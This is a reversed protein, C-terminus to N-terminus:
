CKEKRQAAASRAFDSWPTDVEKGVGLKRKPAVASFPMMILKCGRWAAADGGFNNTRISLGLRDLERVSQVEAEGGGLVRSFRRSIWSGTGTDGDGNFDASGCAACCTGGLCAFFAEIDHDLNGVDGDGNFDATYCSASGRVVVISSTAPNGSRTLTLVRGGGIDPAVLGSFAPTDGAEHRFIPIVDGVRLANPNRVQVTLPGALTTSNSQGFSPVLAAM